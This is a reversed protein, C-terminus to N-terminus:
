KIGLLESINKWAAKRNKSYITIHSRQKTLIFNKYGNSEATLLEYTTILKNIFKVDADSLIGSSLLKNLQKITKNSLMNYEDLLKVAFDDKYAKKHHGDVLTGISTYTLYIGQGSLVGITHLMVDKGKTQARSQGPILISCAIIVLASVSSIRKM